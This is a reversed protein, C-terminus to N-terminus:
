VGGWRGCFFLLEGTVPNYAANHSYESQQGSYNGFGGPTPLPLSSPLGFNYLSNPLTWIPSQAEVLSAYCLLTIVTSRLLLKMKKM